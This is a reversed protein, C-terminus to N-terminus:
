QKRPLCLRLVGGLDILRRELRAKTFEWFTRRDETVLNYCKDKLEVRKVCGPRFDM